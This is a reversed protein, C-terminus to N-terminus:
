RWSVKRDIRKVIERTLSKFEHLALGKPDYVGIANQFAPSEEIKVRKHIRTKFVLEGYTERLMEEIEREMTLRRGDVQNIAIGLVKIKPNMYKKVRDITDLLDKLGALAYPALKVPIIVYDAATLAALQLHGFSPMCDILVYDYGNNPNRKKLRHLAEKLKFIVQFDRDAIPALRINASLLDLNKTVSGPRISQDQYADLISSKITKPNASMSATLNGQPDNDIALVRRSSKLSLIHAINLTLTTKGVGGKQNSIALTVM